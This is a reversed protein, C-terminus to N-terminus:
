ISLAAERAALRELEECVDAMRGSIVLRGSTKGLAGKDVVHVVRLPLPARYSAHEPHEASHADRNVQHASTATTVPTRASRAHWAALTRGLWQFAFTAIYKM